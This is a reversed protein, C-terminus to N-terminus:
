QIYFLTIFHVSLLMQMNQIQNSKLCERQLFILGISACTENYALDNPLDYEFSFAEGDVTSGIGGTIYMKREEIDKWIKECASLLKDNETEKAVDAM